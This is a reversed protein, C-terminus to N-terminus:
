FVLLFHIGLILRVFTFESESKLMNHRGGMEAGSNMMDMM